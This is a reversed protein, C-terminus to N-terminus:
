YRDEKTIEENEEIINGRKNIAKKGKQYEKSYLQLELYLKSAIDNLRHFLLKSIIITNGKM